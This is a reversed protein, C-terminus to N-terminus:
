DGLDDSDREFGLLDDGSERGEVESCSWSDQLFTGGAVYRLNQLAPFALAFVRLNRSGARRIPTARGRGCRSLFIPWPVLVRRGARPRVGCWGLRRGSGRCSSSGPAFTHWSKRGPGQAGHQQLRGHRDAGRSADSQTASMGQVRWPPVFWRSRSRQRGPVFRLLAGTATGAAGSRSGRCLERLM